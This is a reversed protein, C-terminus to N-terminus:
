NKNKYQLRVLLFNRIFDVTLTWKSISQRRVEPQEPQNIFSILYEKDNRGIQTQMKICSVTAVKSKNSKICDM